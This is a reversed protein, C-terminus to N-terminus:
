MKAALSAGIKVATTITSIASAINSLQVDIKSLTTQQQKMQTVLSQIQPDNDNFRDNVCNLYNAECAGYQSNISDMKASDGECATLLNPLNEEFWSYQTQLSQLAATM